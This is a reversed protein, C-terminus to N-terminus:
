LVDPLNLSQNQKILIMLAFDHIDGASETFENVNEKTVAFDQINEATSAYDHVDEADM